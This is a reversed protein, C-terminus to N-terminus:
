SGLRASKSRYVGPACGILAKFERTFHAQDFYGLQAALEAVSPASTPARLRELAEHLRYRRIVWKASVGVCARFRRQLARVSLGALSAADEVKLIERDVAIRETLDRLAAVQAPLEPLRACLWPEAVAIAEEVSAVEGLARQLQAGARGFIQRVPVVRDTLLWLPKKLWPSFAAPRFKVGFVRGSDELTRTFRGTGVGGVRAQGGPGEFTIHVSPHPLTAVETRRQGSWRVWWFHAVFPALADCSLLRRHETMGAALSATVLGRPPGPARRDIDRKQL